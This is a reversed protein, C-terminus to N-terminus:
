SAVGVCRKHPFPQGGHTAISTAPYRLGARQRTSTGPSGITGGPPFILWLVDPKLPLLGNRSASSGLIRNVSQRAKRPQQRRQRRQPRQTSRTSRSVLTRTSGAYRSYPTVSRDGAALHATATVEQFHNYLVRRVPRVRYPSCGLRRGRCLAESAERGVRSNRSARFGLCVEPGRSGM